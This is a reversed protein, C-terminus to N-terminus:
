LSNPIIIKKGGIEYPQGLSKELNNEILAKILWTSELHNPIETQRLMQSILQGKEVLASIDRDIGQLHIPVGLKTKCFGHYLCASCGNNFSFFDAIKSDAISADIDIMTLDITNSIDHPHNESLWYKFWLTLRKDKHFNYNMTFEQRSDGTTRLNSSYTNDKQM